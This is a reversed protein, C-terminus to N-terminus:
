ETERRANARGNDGAPGGIEIEADNNEEGEYIKITMRRQTKTSSDWNDNAQLVEMIGLLDRSNLYFSPAIRGAAGITELKQRFRKNRSTLRGQGPELRADGDDTIGTAAAITRLGRLLTEGASVLTWDPWRSGTRNVTKAAQEPPEWDIYIEQRHIWRMEETILNTNMNGHAKFSVHRGGTGPANELCAMLAAMAARPACLSRAAHDGPIPPDKPRSSILISSEATATRAGLLLRPEQGAEEGADKVAITVIDQPKAAMKLLARLRPLLTQRSIECVLIGCKREPEPVPDCDLVDTTLTQARDINELKVVRRTTERLPKRYTIRLRDGRAGTLFGAIARQDISLTTEPIEPPELTRHELPLNEVSVTIPRGDADHFRHRVNVGRRSIELTVARQPTDSSAAVSLRLAIELLSGSLTATTM